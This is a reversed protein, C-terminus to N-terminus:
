QFHTLKHALFKLTTLDFDVWKWWMDDDVVYSNNDNIFSFVSPLHVSTILELLTNHWSFQGFERIDQSDPTSDIHWWLIYSTSTQVHIYSIYIDNIVNTSFYYMNRFIDQKDRPRTFTCTNWTQHICSERWLYFIMRM